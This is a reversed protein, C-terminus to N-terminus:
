FHLRLGGGAHLGGVEVEVPSSGTPSFDKRGSAYRLLGGVGIHDAFRWTMDVGVNYGVVTERLVETAAGPFPLETFPFVEKDLTMTLGTVFTQETIFISPGGFVIFDLREVSPIAWGITIHQGIETRTADAIEGTTTRARNFQLPHPVRAEIEATGQNDLISVALGAHLGRWVRVLASADYAIDTPTTRDFTFSGQEFYQQFTQEQTLPTTTAQTGVNVGFRLRDQAHAPIAMLGGLAFAPLIRALSPLRM